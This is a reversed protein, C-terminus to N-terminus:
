EQQPSCLVVIPVVVRDLVSLIQMSLDRAKEQSSVPAGEVEVGEWSLCDMVQRGWTEKEEAVM